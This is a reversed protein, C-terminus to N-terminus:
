LRSMNITIEKEKKKKKKHVFADKHKEVLDYLSFWDEKKIYNLMKNAVDDSLDAFGVATPDSLDVGLRDKILRLAQQQTQLQPATGEYGSNEGSFGGVLERASGLRNVYKEYLDSDISSLYDGFTDSTNEDVNFSANLLAKYLDQGKETQEYSGTEPNLEYYGAKQLDNLSKSRLVGREVGYDLLKDEIDRYIAGETKLRSEEEQIATNFEGYIKSLNSLQQTQATAVSAGYQSELNEKLQEKFGSTLHSMQALQRQQQQYNAFASSIDYSMQQQTQAVENELNTKLPQLFYREWESVGLANKRAEKQLQAYDTATAIAM